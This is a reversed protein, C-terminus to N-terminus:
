ISPAIIAEFDIASLIEFIILCYNAIKANKKFLIDVCYTASTKLIIYIYNQVLSQGM